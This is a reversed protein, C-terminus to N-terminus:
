LTGTQFGAVRRLGVRLVVWTQQTPGICATAQSRTAFFTQTPTPVLGLRIEVATVM